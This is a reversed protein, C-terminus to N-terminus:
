QEVGILLLKKRNASKTYTVSFPQSMIEDQVTYCRLYETYIYYFFDEQTDHEFGNDIKSSDSCQRGVYSVASFYCQCINEHCIYQKNNIKM